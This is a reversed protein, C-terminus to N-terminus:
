VPRKGAPMGAQELLALRAPLEALLAQKQTPNM